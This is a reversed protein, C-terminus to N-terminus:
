RGSGGRARRCRLVDQAVALRDADPVVSRSCRGRLARRRRRPPRRTRSTGARRATRGASRRWSRSGWAPWSSRRGATCELHQDDQPRPDPPRGLVPHDDRDVALGAEHPPHPEREAPQLVRAVHQGVDGVAVPARDGADDPGRREELLHLGMRMAAWRQCMVPRSTLRPRVGASTAPGAKLSFPPLAPPPLPLHVFFDFSRRDRAGCRADHAQLRGIGGGGRRPNLRTM